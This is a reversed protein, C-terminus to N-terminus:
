NPSIAGLLEAIFKAGEDIGVRRTKPDRLSDLVGRYQDGLFARLVRPMVLAAELSGSDLIRLDDMLELDNLSEPDITYTVGRVEVTVKDAKQTKPKRHDQPKKAM